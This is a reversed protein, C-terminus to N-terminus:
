INVKYEKLPIGVLNPAIGFRMGGHITYRPVLAVFAYLDKSKYAKNKRQRKKCKKMVLNHVKGIM